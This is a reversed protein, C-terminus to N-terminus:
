RKVAVQAALTEVEPLEDILRDLAETVLQQASRNRITCALRLKLHREADVRLTFAARRGESLANRRTPAAKRVPMITVRAQTEVREAIAEQQRVIEPVEASVPTPSDNLSVVEGVPNEDAEYGMDNWGLDDHGSHNPVQGYDIDILAQLQPRMAPKAGGKRAQLGSSLSAFPKAESM